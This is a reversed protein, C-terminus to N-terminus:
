AAATLMVRMGTADESASIVRSVDYGCSAAHDLQRSLNKLKPKMQEFYREINAITEYQDVLRVSMSARDPIISVGVAASVYQSALRLNNLVTNETIPTKGFSTLYGNIDAAIDAIAVEVARDARRSLLGRSEAVYLARLPASLDNGKWAFPEWSEAETLLKSLGHELKLWDKLELPSIELRPGVKAAPKERRPLTITMATPKVPATTEANDDAYLDDLRERHYLHCKSYHCKLNGAM